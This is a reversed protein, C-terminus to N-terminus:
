AIEYHCAGGKEQWQRPRWAKTNPDSTPWPSFGSSPSVCVFSVVIFRFPIANSKTQVPHQKTTKICSITSKKMDLWSFPLCVLYERSDRLIRMRKKRETNHTNMINHFSAEIGVWPLIENWNYFVYIATYHKNVGPDVFFFAKAMTVAWFRQVFTVLSHKYQELM